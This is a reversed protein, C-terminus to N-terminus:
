KLLVVKYSRSENGATLRAFYVGSRVTQGADNTGRWTTTFTGADHKRDVLTAVREGRVDYIVVRVHGKSPVVYRFTTQPNFPNPFASISFADVGPPEQAGTADPGIKALFADTNNSSFAGGGFDITGEFIGGMAVTYLDASLCNPEQFKGPDGFRRSAVHAGNPTFEVLFVDEFGASVLLGGGFNATGTLVGALYAFGSADVAMATGRQDSADGWRASWLHNGFCDLKAVYADSGGASTIAGGGFDASGSLSGTIYVHGDFPAIALASVDQSAADGYRGAWQYIGTAGFQAIGVDLFGASTLPGGGFNVTGAFSSGLFVNGWHDTGVAVGRQDSADGFRKSWVHAGTADIKALFADYSGASTLNAGGFNVTGVFSGTWYVNDAVLDGVMGASEQEAADGFRKGWQYVGGSNFKALFLDRGGSSALAGGGFNVSGTFTGGLYVDGSTSVVVATAFQSDSTDGFVHDWQYVGASNFKVLVIDSGGNSTRLGGGFDTANYFYGAAYIDGSADTAVALINQASSGTHARSWEHNLADAPRASLLVSAGLALLLFTANRM